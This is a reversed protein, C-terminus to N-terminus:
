YSDKKGYYSPQQHAPLNIGLREDLARAFSSVTPDTFHREAAPSKDTKTPADPQGYSQLNRSPSQNYHQEEPKQSSCSEYSKSECAPQNGGFIEVPPLYANSDAVAPRQGYLELSFTSTSGKADVLETKEPSKQAMEVSHM